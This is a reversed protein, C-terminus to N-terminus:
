ATREVQGAAMERAIRQVFRVVAKGTDTTAKAEIETAVVQREAIRAALLHTEIVELMQAETPTAGGAALGTLAGLLDAAPSGGRAPAVPLHVVNAAGDQRGQPEASSARDAQKAPRASAPPAGIGSEELCYALSGVNLARKARTVAVYALRLNEADPLVKTVNGDEDEELSPQPFDDAIVVADWELGKAKHATTVM